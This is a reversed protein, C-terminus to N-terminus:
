QPYRSLPVVHRLLMLRRTPLHQGLLRAVQMYGAGQAQLGTAGAPQTHLAALDPQRTIAIAVVMHQVAALL